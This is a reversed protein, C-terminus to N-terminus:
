CSFSNFVAGPRIDQILGDVLSFDFRGEEPEVLEWSVGALVTNFHMDLMRQWIPKMYELSSSSSNHLEGGIVLFPNGDVVLQVATGQKRLQPINGASRGDGPQAAGATSTSTAPGVIGTLGSYPIYSVGLYPSTTNQHTQTNEQITEGLKVNPIVTTVGNNWVTINIVQFPQLGFSGLDNNPVGNIAVIIDGPVIGAHLAPSPLGSADAEVGVIASGNAAPVMTNVTLLLLGLCVLGVIFNIGSGAGLIRLSNRAKTEKLATEDLEVFAGLPIFFFFILGATKVPLGLSRAVIGHSAEHIVVAVVIAIWGYIIPVYPNLGPLLLNALPTITRVYSVTSAGKPGLFIFVESLILYLAIGGSIPMLYLMFWALPKTIKRKGLTDMISLGRKTRLMVIGYNFTFRKYDQEM